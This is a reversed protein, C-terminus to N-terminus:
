AGGGPPLDSNFMDWHLLWRGDQKKWLVMYKGRDLETGDIDAMSYGGHEVAGAGGDSQVEVRWTDLRAIGEAKLAAMADVVAQRGTMAPSGPVMFVCDETYLPGIAMMDGGNFYEPILRAVQDIEAKIVESPQM